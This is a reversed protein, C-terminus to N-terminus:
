FARQRRDIAPFMVAIQDLAVTPFHFFDGPEVRKATRFGQCRPTVNSPNPFPPGTASKEGTPSLETPGTCSFFRKVGKEKRDAPERGIRAIDHSSPTQGRRFVTKKRLAVPGKQQALFSKAVALFSSESSFCRPRFIHV